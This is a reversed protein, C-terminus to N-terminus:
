PPNQGNKQVFGRVFDPDWEVERTSDDCKCPLDHWGSRTEFPLCSKLAQERGRRGMCSSRTVVLLPALNPSPYGVDDGFEYIMTDSGNSSAGLGDSLVNSLTQTYSPKEAQIWIGSGVVPRTWCGPCFRGGATNWDAEWCEPIRFSPSREDTEFKQGPVWDPCYPPMSGEFFLPRADSRIVELWEGALPPKPRGFSADERSYIQVLRQEVDFFESASGGQPWEFAAMESVAVPTEQLDQYWVDCGTSCRQQDWARCDRFPSPSNPTTARWAPTNLYFTNLSSLNFPLPYHGNYVGDLYFAWPSSMDRIVAHRSRGIFPVGEERNLLRYYKPDNGSGVGCIDICFCDKVPFHSPDEVIAPPAVDDLDDMDDDTIWSSVSFALWMM